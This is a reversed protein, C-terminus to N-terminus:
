FVKVGYKVYRLLINVNNKLAFYYMRAFSKLNETQVPLFNEYFIFIFLTIPDVM